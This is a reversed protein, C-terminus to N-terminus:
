FYIDKLESLQFRQWSEEFFVQWTERGAVKSFFLKKVTIKWSNQKTKLVTKKKLTRRLLQTNINIFKSKNLHHNKEIKLNKQTKKWQFSMINSKKFVSNSIRAHLRGTHVHEEYVLPTPSEGWKLLFQIKQLSSEGSRFNFFIDSAIKESLSIM